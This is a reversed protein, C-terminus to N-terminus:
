RAERQLGHETPSWTEGNFRGVDVEALYFLWIWNICIHHSSCRRDKQPTYAVIHTYCYYVVLNQFKSPKYLGDLHHHSPSPKTNSYWCQQWDERSFAVDQAGERQAEEGQKATAASGETRRRKGSLRRAGSPQSGHWPMSSWWRIIISSICNM